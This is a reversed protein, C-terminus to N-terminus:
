FKVQVKRSDTKWRFPFSNTPNPPLPTREPESMRHSSSWRLFRQLKCILMWPFPPEARGGGKGGCLQMDVERVLTVQGPTSLFMYNVDAWAGGKGEGPTGPSGDQYARRPGMKRQPHSWLVQGQGPHLAWSCAGPSLVQLWKLQPPAEALCKDGAGNNEM